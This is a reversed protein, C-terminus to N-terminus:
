QMDCQLLKLGVEDDFARTIEKQFDIINVECTAGVIGERLHGGICSFDNSSLVAHMHVFPNGDVLSVNGTLSVLEGDGTFTKWVYEKKELNYYGLEAQSLAGIAQFFGSKMGVKQFFATLSETINEGKQLRLLYGQPTKAYQM